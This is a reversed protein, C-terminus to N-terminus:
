GSAVHAIFLQILHKLTALCINKGLIHTCVCECVCVAFPPRPCFIYHSDCCPTILNLATSLSTCLNWSHSCVTINPFSLMCLSEVCLIVSTHIYTVCKRHRSDKKQKLCAAQVTHVCFKLPLTCCLIAAKIYCLAPTHFSSLQDGHSATCCRYGPQFSTM